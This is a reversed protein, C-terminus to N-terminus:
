SYSSGLREGWTSSSLIPGRVAVRAKPKPLWTPEREFGTEFSSQSVAAAGAAELVWEAPRGSSVSEIGAQSTDVGTGASLETDELELSTNNGPKFIKCFFLLITCFLKLLSGLHM